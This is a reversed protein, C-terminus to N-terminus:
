LSVAAFSVASVARTRRIRARQRLDDYSVSLMPAMIRLKENSLRRMSGLIGSARVDAALPENEVTEGNVTEFRLQEPFSEAPEGEALITLIHDRRGLKIYYNLEELCWKSQLYRPSCICILWESQELAEHIDESLSSSLPLEEQDRFVKGMSSIGSTERIGSPIRYTEILTHLRKAIQQDPAQHRYSIFAKYRFGNKEQVNDM